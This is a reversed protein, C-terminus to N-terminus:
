PDSGDVARDGFPESRFFVVESGVVAVEGIGAPARLSIEPDGRAGAEESRRAYEAGGPLSAVVAAVVSSPLPIRGVRASRITFTLRDGPGSAIGGVLVVRVTDPMLEPLSFGDRPPLVEHRAVLAEVQLREDRVSVVPAHVGEPIMGPAAHRLLATMEAGDLRLRAGLNGTRFLQVRDVLVGATVQEDASPKLALAAAETEFDHEASVEVDGGVARLLVVAGILVVLLGGVAWRIRSM